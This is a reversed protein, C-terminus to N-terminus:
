SALRGRYGPRFGPPLRDLLDRVTDQLTEFPDRAHFGLERAAKRADLYFFHEAIEASPADLAPEVGRWKALKELAGAGLINLRRPLQVRPAAVGSIRELRQFFESFSMNIGLLHKGGLEGRTLAAYFVDAADRVDVFSVGGGPMSPIERRLFKM